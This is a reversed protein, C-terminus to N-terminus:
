KFLIKSCGVKTRLSRKVCDKANKINDWFEDIDKAEPFRGSVGIIAIDNQSYTKPISNM